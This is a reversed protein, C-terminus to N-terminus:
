GGGGSPLCFFCSSSCDWLSYLLFWMVSLLRSSFLLFKHGLHSSLIFGWSFLYTSIPLRGSFSNLIIITFIIWSRPFAISFICSINVLCKSFSFAFLCLYYYQADLASPQGPCLELM